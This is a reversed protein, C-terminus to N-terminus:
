SAGNFAAFARELDDVLDNIDELGAHIRLVPEDGTWPCATRYKQVPVPICLSEFGGWSYGMGFLTLANCFAALQAEKCPKLLFGFLGSAGSFDRKWINHDPHSPLGPHLVQAVEPRAELWRALALGNREHVPLRAALTRLGRHALYVDDASVNSGLQRLTRSIKRSINGDNTAVTGILCDAHGSIYKTAAQISVAAGHELPKFYYSAAWTNDVVLPIDAKSAAETIAPIDQVEFTLSGPSEALILATEPRILKSIAAGARPDYYEAEINQRKLYGDCFGRVPDYATDVVLVHDGPSALALMTLNVAALGSSALFVDSAKELLGISEEFARHTATGFRGYFLPRNKRTFDEYTPFLITSAREPPYSVTHAPRIEPRGSAVLDTDQGRDQKNKGPRDSM